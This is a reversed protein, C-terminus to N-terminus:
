ALGRKGAAVVNGIQAGQAMAETKLKDYAGLAKMGGGVVAGVATGIPGTMSGAIPAVEGIVGRAVNAYKDLGSLFKGSATYATGLFGKATKMGRHVQQYIRQLGM